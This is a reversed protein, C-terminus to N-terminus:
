PTVSVSKLDGLVLHLFRVNVNAREGEGNRNLTSFFFKELTAGM